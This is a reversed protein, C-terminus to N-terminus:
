ITHDRDRPHNIQYGYSNANVKELKSITLRVALYSFLFFLSPCPV